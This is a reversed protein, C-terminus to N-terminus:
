SSRQYMRARVMFRPSVTRLRPSSGSSSISLLSPRAMSAAGASRTEEDAQLAAVLEAPKRRSHSLRRASGSDTILTQCSMMATLRFPTNLTVCAKRSWSRPLLPWITLM